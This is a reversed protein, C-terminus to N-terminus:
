GEVLGFDYKRNLERLQESILSVEPHARWSIPM